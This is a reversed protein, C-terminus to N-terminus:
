ENDNEAIVWVKINPIVESHLKVKVDFIGLTKIPEEIIISNKDVDYGLEILNTAITQNSVSGYLKNTTGDVKMSITVQLDSIKTALEQATSKAKESLSLLKKKEVEVRKVAGEKALYAFERPILFNRAYGDKVNVVDGVKGLKDVNKRLIIKM